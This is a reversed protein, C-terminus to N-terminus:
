GLKKMRNNLKQQRLVALDRELLARQEKQIRRLESRGWLGTAMYDAIAVVFVVFLLGLVGIWYYVLARLSERDEETLDEAKTQALRGLEALGGAFVAGSLMGALALLLFANLTRRQFMGRLYRRDESALSEARLRSFTRFQYRLSVVAIAAVFASLVLLAFPM